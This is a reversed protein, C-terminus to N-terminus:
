ILNDMSGVTELIVEKILINLDNKSLNPMFVNSAIVKETATKQRSLTHM